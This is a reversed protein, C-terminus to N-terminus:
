ATIELVQSDVGDMMKHFSGFLRDVMQTARMATVEDLEIRDMIKRLHNELTEHDHEADLHHQSFYWLTPLSDASESVRKATNTFFVEATAELCELIILRLSDSRTALIEGIIEFTAERCQRSTERYVESLTPEKGNLAQTDKLFWSVHELEERRHQSVLKRLYPDEFREENQLIADQFTLVWFSLGSAITPLIQAAPERHLVEFFPHKEFQVVQAEIYSQVRKM